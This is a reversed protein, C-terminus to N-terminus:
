HAVASQPLGSGSTAVDRFADIINSFCDASEEASFPPVYPCHLVVHDIVGEFEALKQRAEEPTGTISLAEVIRDDTHAFAALGERRMRARLDDVADQFGHLAAVADSVPHVAYFGVQLRARRMAVERDPHVCCINEVCLDIDSLDRGAKAAGAAIKPKVSEELFKPTAFYGLWGDAKRGCLDLMAPGMAALYIPIQPRALERGGWPNLPPPNFWYHEGELPEAKGTGLYEWSRRLVDIYESMRGVPKKANTSHLRKLLEPAGTGLGFIMRGGSMEDVDAAANAAEFPSRSFGAALGTGLKIRETRVAAGALMTFPNRYVEYDFASYFGADEAQKAYEFVNPIPGTRSPLTVGVRM